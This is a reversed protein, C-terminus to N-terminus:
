GQGGCTMLVYTSASVVTSAPGRYITLVPASVLPAIPKQRKNTLSLQQHRSNVVMEM